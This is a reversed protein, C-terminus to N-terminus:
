CARRISSAHGIRDPRGPQAHQNTPQRVSVIGEPSIVIATADHPHHHAAALLRGVNSDGVVINGNSNASLNGARTYYTTGNPDLVQFFGIGQIAVDLQNGTQQM